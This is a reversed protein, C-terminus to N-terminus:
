SFFEKLPILSNTHSVCIFVTICFWFRRNLWIILKSDPVMYNKFWFVLNVEAITIDYNKSLYISFCIIDFYVQFISISLNYSKFPNKRIVFKNRKKFLSFIFLKWWSFIALTVLVQKRLFFLFGLIFQLSSFLFSVNQFKVIDNQNNSSCM